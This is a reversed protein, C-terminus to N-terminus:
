IQPLTPTDALLYTQHCQKGRRSAQTCLEGVLPDRSGLLIQERRPFSVCEHPLSIWHDPALFPNLPHSPVSWCNLTQLSFCVCYGPVNQFKFSLIFLFSLYQWINLRLLFRYYKFSNTSLCALQTFSFLIWVSIWFCM